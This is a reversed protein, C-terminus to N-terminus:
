KCTKRGKKKSFIIELNKITYKLLKEEEKNKKNFFKASFKEIIENQSSFELIWERLSKNFFNSLQNRKIEDFESLLRDILKKNFDNPFNSYKRNINESLIEKLTKNFLEDNYNKKITKKMEFNLKKLQKEFFGNGINGGYVKRIFDNAYIVLCNLLIVKAKRIDNPKSIENQWVDDKNQNIEKRQPFPNLNIVNEMTTRPKEINEITNEFNHEYLEIQNFIPISELYDSYSYDNPTINDLDNNMQNMDQFFYDDM